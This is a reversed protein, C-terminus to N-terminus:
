RIVSSHTNPLYGSCPYSYVAPWLHTLLSAHRPCSQLMCCNTLVSYLKKKIYKITKGEKANNRHRSKLIETLINLASRSQGRPYM